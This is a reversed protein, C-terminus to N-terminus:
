CPRTKFLSIKRVGSVWTINGHICNACNIKLKLKGILTITRDVLSDAVKSLQDETRNIAKQTLAKMAERGLFKGSDKYRYRQTKPDFEFEISM